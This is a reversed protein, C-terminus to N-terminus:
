RFEPLAIACNRRQFILLASAHHAPAPARIWVPIALHCHLAARAHGLPLSCDLRQGRRAASRVRRPTYFPSSCLGPARRRRSRRGWPVAAVLRLFFRRPYSCAAVCRSFFLLSLRHSLPAASSARWHMRLCASCLPACLSSPHSITVRIPPTTSPTASSRVSRPRVTSGLSAMPSPDNPKQFASGCTNPLVRACRRQFCLVALASFLSGFPSCALAFASSLSMQIASLRGSASCAQSLQQAVIFRLLWFSALTQAFIAVAHQRKHGASCQCCRRVVFGM